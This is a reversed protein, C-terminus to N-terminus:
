EHARDLILEALEYHKNEQAHEYYENWDIILQERIKAFMLLALERNNCECAIFLYERYDNAGRKIMLNIIESYSAHLARIIDQTEQGILERHGGIFDARIEADIKCDDNITLLKVIDYFGYCANKLSENFNSAGRAIMERVIKVHGGRCSERLGGEWDNAGRSIMLDILAVNNMYCAGYLGENWESAGREILLDVIDRRGGYCADRLCGNYDLEPVRSMITDIVERHGLACASYLAVSTFITGRSIAINAFSTYNYKSALLILRDQDFTNVIERVPKGDIMPEPILAHWASCVGRAHARDAPDVLYAFIRALDYRSLIDM